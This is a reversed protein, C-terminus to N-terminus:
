LPGGTTPVNRLREGQMLIDTGKKFEPRANKEGFETQSAMRLWEAGKQQTGVSIKSLARKKRIVETHSSRQLYVTANCHTRCIAGIQQGLFGEM